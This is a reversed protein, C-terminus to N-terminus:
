DLVQITSNKLSKLPEISYVKMSAISDFTAFRHCQWRNCM